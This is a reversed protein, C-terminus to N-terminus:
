KAAPRSDGAYESYVDSELITRAQEEGVIGALYQEDWSEAARAAADTMKKRDEANQLNLAFAIARMVASERSVLQEVLTIYKKQLPITETGFKAMAEAAKGGLALEIVARRNDVYPKRASM